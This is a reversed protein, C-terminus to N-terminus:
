IYVIEAIHHIISTSPHLATNRPKYLVLFLFLFFLNGFYGRHAKIIGPMSMCDM